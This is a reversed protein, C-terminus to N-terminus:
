FLRRAGSFHKRYWRENIRSVIVDQAPNAAHVMRGRGIYVGVHHIGHKFYFLLDGAKLNRLSVSHLARFQARSSHPLKRGAGHRWVYLAFGSCDFRRPGAAGASYRMGIRSRAVRVIKNRVNSVYRARAARASISRTTPRASRIATGTVASSIAVSQAATRLTPVGTAGATGAASATGSPSLLGAALTAGLIGVTVRLSPRTATTSTTPSPRTPVGSMRM